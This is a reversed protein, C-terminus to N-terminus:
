AAYRYGDSRQVIQCHKHSVGQVTGNKGTINFSGSSRVAVKGEHTGRKTGYVAAKGDGLLVRARKPRCPTLPRKETDLVFVKQMFFYEKFLTAAQM